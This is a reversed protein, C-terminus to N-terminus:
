CDSPNFPWGHRPRLAVALVAAAFLIASAFYFLYNPGSADYIVGGVLPGLAAGAGAAFSALGFTRGMAGANSLDAVWANKTLDVLVAGVSAAVFAGIVLAFENVFPVSVYFVAAIVLGIVVASARHLRGSVRGLWPPLIAYAIGMPLFATALWYLELDFRARLYIMYFPQILAGAFAAAFIITLIRVYNEPLSFKELSKNAKEQPQTEPIANLAYIIALGAVAAFVWFSMVWAYVPMAGVLGFGVFAGAMGGRSKSAINGGMAASRNEALTIDATITDTTIALIAFGLGQLLRAIYLASVTESVAYFINAAFYFLVALLFFPRRGFIDLGVGTLPRVVFVAATFLSFLAGIEFASAGLDEARLPLAFSIFVMPASVLFLVRRVATLAKKSIASKETERENYAVGQM